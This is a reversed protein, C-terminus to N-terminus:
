RPKVPVQTPPYLEPDITRSFCHNGEPHNWTENATDRYEPIPKTISTEDSSLNFNACLEFALPGTVDYEYISGTQPDVPPVFGSIDDRLDELSAPLTQKQQWYNVIQWQIAQLDNLKQNDFRVLRQKFPSGALILGAVVAAIVVISSGWAFMKAVPAMTNPDRRLELLYYRFIAIAVILVAIAKLVFRVTLEGELFSFILAILDGIILIAALFLTLYIMWRRVKLERKEPNARLDRGLFRAIWLFVPYLIILSAIAWRVSSGPNFYQNLPDPYAIDILAFALRLFQFTSVYLIGMMLLHMLIDRPTSKLKQDM